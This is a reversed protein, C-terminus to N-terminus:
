EDGRRDTREGRGVDAGAHRRGAADVGGHVARACQLGGHRPPIGDASGRRDGPARAAVQGQQRGARCAARGATRGAAHLWGRYLHRLSHLPPAQGGREAARGRSQNGGMDHVQPGPRPPLLLPGSSTLLIRCVTFGIWRKPAGSCM